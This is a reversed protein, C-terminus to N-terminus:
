YIFCEGEILYLSGILPLNPAVTVSAGFKELFMKKKNRDWYLVLLVLLLVLGFFINIQFM